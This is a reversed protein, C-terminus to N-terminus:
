IRVIQQSREAKVTTIKETAFLRRMAAALQDKTLKAAVIEPEKEFLVPAYTSGPSPGAKRGERAYRDILIMFMQDARAEVIEPDTSGGRPEPVFIGEKFRLLIDEHPRGHQNKLFELRRLEPDDDDTKMYMMARGKNRWGTSGSFGRGDKIGSLSPHACIVVASDSDMSVKRMLTMFASSQRRSVEEGDFADTLTDIVIISPQIDCAQAHLDNFLPTPTIRDNRDFVALTMDEGAYSAIHLGNNVLDDFSIGPHKASLIADFRRWLDNAEEEAGLYMAPGGQPLSGIWDSGLVTATLLQMMLISKGIAGEGTFLTVNRSPIRDRVAWPVPPPKEGTWQKMDIWKIPKAHQHNNPDPKGAQRRAEAIVQDIYHPPWRLHLGASFVQEKITIDTEGAIVAAFIGDFLSPKKLM